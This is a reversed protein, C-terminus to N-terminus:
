GKNDVTGAGVNGTVPPNTTADPAETESKMKVIRVRDSARVKVQDGIKQRKNDKKERITLSIAAIIAVLLILGAIEFAFIYDTYIVKGILHSNSMVASGAAVNGLMPDRVPTITAGYGHWLILATEIIIIAGVISALPVFKKFDRHLVDLNIDLMMVVFLFLVMVAGVYVLVLVIGLFEADLLVWIVASNFFCLVLLLASYVPNRSLIVGLAAGVLVTAFIFFLITPFM